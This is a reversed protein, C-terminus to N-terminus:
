RSVNARARVAAVVDAVARASTTDVTTKDDVVGVHDTAVLDHRHNTSLNALADQAEVWGGSMGETATVVVLPKDDFSTLAQAQPFADHYRSHEDRANRMQRPSSAFAHVEDGADGSLTSYFSSPAMRLIGTRAIPQMVGYVSRAMKYVGPFTPIVEFQRPSSADLLV